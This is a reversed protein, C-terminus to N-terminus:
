GLEKYEKHLLVISKAIEIYQMDLIQLEEQKMKIQKSIEAKKEQVDIYGFDIASLQKALSLVEPNTTLSTVIEEIVVEESTKLEQVSTEPEKLEDVITVEVSNEKDFDVSSSKVIDKLVNIFNEPDTDPYKKNFAQELEVSENLIKELGKASVDDSESLKIIEDTKSTLEFYDNRYGLIFESFNKLIEFPFSNLSYNTKFEIYHLVNDLYSIEEKSKVNLSNAITNTTKTLTTEM